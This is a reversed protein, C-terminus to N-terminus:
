PAAVVAAFRGAEDTTALARLMPPTRNSGFCDATGSCQPEYLRVTATGLPAGGPGVVTGSVLAARPLVIDRAVTGSTPAVFSTETLRPLSSGAPPDFDLQYTGPDLELTYSGDDDSVTSTGAAPTSVCGDTPGPGPTATIAINAGPEGDSGSVTGKVVSRLPLSVPALTASGPTSGGITVANNAVCTTAYPSSPPPIVTLEYNLTANASGPLLSLSVSGDQATTGSRAFSATGTGSGALTTQARVFAGSVAAGASGGSEVLVSFVNPNSYAPLTVIDLNRGPTLPNSVWWPDPSDANQPTLEVTVTGGPATAAVASPLELTFTGDGSATVPANSVAVDGAFARAVFPAAPPSGIATHLTGAMRLNDSPLSTSMNAAITVPFAYPPSTGDAPTIPVLDLTGARGLATTPVSIAATASSGGSAPTVTAQYSRDPRGGILPAFSLVANAAAPLAATASPMFAITLTAAGEATLALPDPGIDVTALETVAAESTSLPDIEVSWSVHTSLPPVCASAECAAGAGSPVDASSATAEQSGCGLGAIALALAASVVSPWHQAADASAAM